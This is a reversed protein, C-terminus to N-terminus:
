VGKERKKKRTTVLIVDIAKTDDTPWKQNALKADIPGSVNYQDDGKGRYLFIKAWWQGVQKYPGSVITGIM